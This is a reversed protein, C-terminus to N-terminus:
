QNGRRCAEPARSTPASVKVTSPEAFCLWKQPVPVTYSYLPCSASLLEEAEVMTRGYVTVPDTATDETYGGGDRGAFVLDISLRVLRVDHGAITSLLSELGGVNMMRAMTPDLECKKLACNGSCDLVAAFRHEGFLQELDAQDEMDCGVIGPASLRWSNRPRIGIVQRGFRARFYEFANYGAVGAVGTILLPLPPSYPPKEIMKPM